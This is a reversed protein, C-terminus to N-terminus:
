KTKQNMVNFVYTQIKENNMIQNVACRIEPHANLHESVIEQAAAVADAEIQFHGDHDYSLGVIALARMYDLKEKPMNNIILAAAHKAREAMEKTCNEQEFIKQFYGKTLERATNHFDHSLVDRCDELCISLILLVCIDIIMMTSFARKKEQLKHTLPTNVSYTKNLKKIKLTGIGFNIGGFFVGLLLGFLLGGFMKDRFLIQKICKHLNDSTKRREKAYNNLALKKERFLAKDQQTM